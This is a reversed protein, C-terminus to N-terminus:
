LPKAVQETDCLGPLSHEFAFEVKWHDRFGTDNISYEATM